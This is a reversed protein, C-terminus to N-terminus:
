AHPRLRRGRRARRRAGEIREFRGPVADAAALGAVIDDADIGLVDATTAAALSNAVNFGGGLGVTVRRGRWTYAHGDARVEVDDVDAASFPVMEISAADFLLRGHPDDINTVGVAAMEPTFLRAKARFYEEVTGHLDLHDTGLNTFVAAAFWTGDVRHMAMAHSSVEM